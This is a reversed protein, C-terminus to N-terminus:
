NYFKQVGVADELGISAEYRDEFKLKSKDHKKM